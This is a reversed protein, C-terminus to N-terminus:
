PKAGHSTLWAIIALGILGAIYKVMPKSAFGDLRTLIAIQLNQKEDITKLKDDHAALRAEQSLDSSSTSTAIAGVRLSTRRRWSEVDELRNEFGDLRNAINQFGDNITKGLARFMDEPTQPKDDEAM